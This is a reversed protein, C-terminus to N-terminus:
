NERTRRALERRAAEAAARHAAATSIAKHGAAAAIALAAARAASDPAAPVKAMAEARRAEREARQRAQWEAELSAERARDLLMPPEDIPTGSLLFALYAHPDRPRDFIKRGSLYVEDLAAHVDDAQWGAVARRTLVAALGQVGLRRVWGPFRDDSRVRSALLLARSDYSRPKRRRGKTDKGRAARGKMVNQPSSVRKPPSLALPGSSRGPPTGFGQHLLTEVAENDVPLTSSEHLASVAAWGRARDGRRWSDLRELKTRQRGRFVVTRTGLTNVLRRCRHMTSESRLTAAQLQGMTVRSNRGTAYDAGGSEAILYHEFTRRGVSDVKEEARLQAYHEDYLALNHAIWRERSWWCAPVANYVDEPLELRM